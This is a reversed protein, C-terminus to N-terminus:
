PLLPSAPYSLISFVWSSWFRWMYQNPCLKPTEGHLLCTVPCPLIPTLAPAWGCSPVILHCGHGPKCIRGGRDTASSDMWLSLDVRVKPSQWPMSDPVFSAESMRWLIVMPPVWSSTVVTAHTVWDKHGNRVVQIRGKESFIGGGQVGKPTRDWSVIQEEILEEPHLGQRVSM